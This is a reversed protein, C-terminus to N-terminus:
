AEEHAALLADIKDEIREVKILLAALATKLSVDGGDYDIQPRLGAHLSSLQAAQTADM